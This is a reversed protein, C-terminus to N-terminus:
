KVNAFMDLTIRNESLELIKKVNRLPIVKRAKWAYVTNISTDMKEALAKLSGFEIVLHDFITHNM